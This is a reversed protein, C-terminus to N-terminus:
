ESEIRLGVDQIGELNETRMGHQISVTYDGKAYFVVDKKYYLLNSKLGSLGEGLWQGDVDTMEYELTDQLIKGDPFSVKTFLYLNSYQYDVTNRVNIFVQNKSLTDELSFNFEIISDKNWTADPIGVYNDYVRNEDCSTIFLIFLVPVFLFRM